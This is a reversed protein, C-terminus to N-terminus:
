GVPRPHREFRRPTESGHGHQHTNMVALCRQPWGEAVWTASPEIGHAGLYVVEKIAEQRHAAVATLIDLPESWSIVEVVRPQAM